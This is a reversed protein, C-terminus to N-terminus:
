SSNRSSSGSSGCESSISSNKSSIHLKNCCCIVIFSHLALVVGGTAASVSTVACFRYRNSPHLPQQLTSKSQQLPQQLLSPPPPSLPMPQVSARCRCSRRSSPAAAAPTAIRLRRCAAVPRRRRCCRYPHRRRRNLRHLHRLHRRPPRPSSVAAAAATNPLWHKSRRCTLCRTDRLIIFSSRADSDHRLSPSSTLPPKTTTQRRRLTHLHRTFM